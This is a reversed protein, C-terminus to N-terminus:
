MGNLPYFLDALFPPTVFSWPELYSVLYALQEM